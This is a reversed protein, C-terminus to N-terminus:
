CVLRQRAREEAWSCLDELTLALPACGRVGALAELQAGAADLQAAFALQFAPDDAIRPHQRCWTAITAAPPVAGCRRGAIAQLTRLGHALLRLHHRELAPLLTSELVALESPSLPGDQAESASGDPTM